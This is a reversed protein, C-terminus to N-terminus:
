RLLLRTGVDRKFRFVLNDDSDLALRGGAPKLVAIANLADLDTTIGKYSCQRGNSLLPVDYVGGPKGRAFDTADVDFVVTPMIYSYGPSHFRVPAEGGYATAGPRFLMTLPPAGEGISDGLHLWGMAGRETSCTFKADDGLLEVSGGAGIVEGGSVGQSLFEADDLVLRSGVGRITSSSDCTM